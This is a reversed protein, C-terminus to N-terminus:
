VLHRIRIWGFIIEWTKFARSIFFVPFTYNILAGFQPVYVTEVLGWVFVSSILIEFDFDFFQKRMFVFIRLLM